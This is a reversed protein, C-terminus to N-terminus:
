RAPMVSAQWWEHRQKGASCPWTVVESLQSSFNVPTVEWGLTLTPSVACPCSYLEDPRVLHCDVVITLTAWKNTCEHMWWIKKLVKCLGLLTSTEPSASVSLCSWNGLTSARSTLPSTPALLYNCYLTNMGKLSPHVTQLMSSLSGPPLSTHM